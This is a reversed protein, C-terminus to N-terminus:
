NFTFREVQYQGHNARNNIGDIIAIALEYEDEFVQGALEDRKLHLWEDEIRNMQPSYPPLFFVYLGQQQWRQHQQRALSSKHVSANDHIIVTIQGTELLRTAATQAQWDMLQVYTPTKLTGVMLAYDFRVKPQWIGFINIRRGRRRNQRIRKQEGRRGYAYDTPSTCYCGSEDLYKLCVLGLQSWLKLLEWDLRKAQLYEKNLNM